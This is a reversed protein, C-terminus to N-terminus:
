YRLATQSQEWVHLATQLQTNWATYWLGRNMKLGKQTSSMTYNKAPNTNKDISNNGYKSKRDYLVNKCIAGFMIQNCMGWLAPRCWVPIVNVSVWCLRTTSRETYRSHSWTPDTRHPSPTECSEQQLPGHSTETKYLFSLNFEDWFTSYSCWIMKKRILNRTEPPSAHKFVQITPRARILVSM